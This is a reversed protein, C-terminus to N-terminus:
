PELGALAAIEERVRQILELKGRVGYDEVKVPRGYRVTIRGPRVVYSGRRRVEMSGILGVPVIPLGSKLALLFGGREFPQLRGDRSRTGEPYIMTSSGEQLRIVASNFSEQAKSRNKRDISIFGGAKMAWGFIPIRFLSEKALLSTQGPLSVIMAPIDHVSQHNAMYIFCQKPSLPVAYDVDLRVGSFLLLGRSWLRAMHFVWKGRPPIWSGLLSLVSFLLSGLILYTNASVTALVTIVTSWASGKARSAENEVM